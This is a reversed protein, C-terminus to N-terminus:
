CLHHIHFRNCYQEGVVFRDQEQIKLGREGVGSKEDRRDRAAGFRYVYQM